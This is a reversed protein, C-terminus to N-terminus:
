FVEDQTLLSKFLLHAGILVLLFHNLVCLIENFTEAVFSSLAHLHLASDLLECFYFADFDVLYVSRM